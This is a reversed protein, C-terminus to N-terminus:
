SMVRITSPSAIPACLTRSYESRRHFLSYDCRKVVVQGKCNNGVTSLTLTEFVALNRNLLTM